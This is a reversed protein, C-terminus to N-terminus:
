VQHIVQRVVGYISWDSDPRIVPYAHNEPKLYYGNSDKGLTKCTSEGHIMAIVVEGPEACPQRRVVLSDGDYIMRGTMSDGVAKMIVIDKTSGFLQSAIDEKEEIAESPCGCPVSGVMAPFHSKLTGALATKDEDDTCLLGSEKLRRIDASITAMSVYGIGSEMIKRYSPLRHYKETYALIFNYLAKGRENNVKRM